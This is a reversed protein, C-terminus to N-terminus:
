GCGGGSTASRQGGQGKSRARMAKVSLRFLHYPLLVADRGPNRVARILMNGLRFSFSNRVAKVTRREEMLKAHLRTIEERASRLRTNLTNREVKIKEAEKQRADRERTLAAKVYQPASLGGYNKVLLVHFFELELDSKPYRELKDKFREYFDRDLETRQLQEFEVGLNLIDFYQRYQSYTLKNRYYYEEFWHRSVSHKLCFEAIVEETFLLHPFPFYIDRYLHSARSSRYLNAHIYMRGDSKLIRCCEKLMTFPHMMHEWAVFSVILDFSEEGFPNRESLDLTLYDLNPLNRLTKWEGRERIDIGVVSCGYQDVLLKSIYGRGCGVELVKKERLDVIEGLQRLRKDAIEFQSEPDYQPFTDVIPKLAYEQNLQELLDLDYKRVNYEGSDKNNAEM